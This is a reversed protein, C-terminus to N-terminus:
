RARRDPFHEETSRREDKVVRVIVQGQGRIMRVPDTLLGRLRRAYSQASDYETVRYRRQTM